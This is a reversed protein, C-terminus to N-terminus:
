KKNTGKYGAPFISLNSNKYDYVPKDARYNIEGKIAQTIRKKAELVYTKDLDAGLFRRNNLLAAVGASGVGMFPDFVLQNKKTMARVLRQVLAVPFQCPHKTKEVHNGKVNPIDWIDGPNKGLTNSSFEGRVITQGQKVMGTEACIERKADVEIPPYKTKFVNKLDLEIPNFILLLKKNKQKKIELICDVPAKISAGPGSYKRKGPYKQPVRVADLDFQYKDSKTYWLIVEYRGSFRKSSHLGHGFQWVIRNKLQLGFSSFIEHFGFDLPFIENKKNDVYNGVQWCISGTPKLKMITEKIVKEQFDFYDVLNLKEEYEKGINYPPSTVVLDVFEKEPLTKLLDLVDGQWLAVDQKLLEKSFKKYINVKKM